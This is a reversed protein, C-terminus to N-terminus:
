GVQPVEYISLYLVRNVINYDGALHSPLVNIKHRSCLISIRPIILIILVVRIM